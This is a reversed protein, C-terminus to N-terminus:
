AFAKDPDTSKEAPQGNKNAKKMDNGLKVLANLRDMDMGFNEGRFMLEVTKNGDNDTKVVFEANELFDIPDDGLETLSDFGRKEKGDATKQVLIQQLFAAIVYDHSVLFYDMATESRLDKIMDIANAVRLAVRAAAKEPPDTQDDFDEEKSNLYFDIGEVTSLLDIKRLDDDTLDPNKARLAQIVHARVKNRYAESAHSALEEVAIIPRIDVAHSSKTIYEATQKTRVCETKENPRSCEGGIIPSRGKEKGLEISKQVGNATLETNPSIQNAEREAHRTLFFHLTANKPLEKREAVAGQEVANADNNETEEPHYVEPYFREM